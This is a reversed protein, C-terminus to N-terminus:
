VPPPAILEGLLPYLLLLLLVNMDPRERKLVYLHLFFDRGNFGLPSQNRIKKLLRVLEPEHCKNKLRSRSLMYTKQCSGDPSPLQM